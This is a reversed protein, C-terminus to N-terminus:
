ADSDRAEEAHEHSHESDSHEVDTINAKDLIFDITKEELLRNKLEELMNNKMYRGRLAAVNTGVKEAEKALHKDVDEDTVEIGQQQAISELLLVGKLRFRAEKELAEREKDTLDIEGRPVKQGAQRRQERALAQVQQEVLGKPLEIPNRELVTELAKRRLEMMAMNEHHAKIEERVHARVQEMDDKGLDAAFEDDLEPLELRSIQKVTVDCELTKGALTPQRFDDPVTLEFTRREGQKMGVLREAFGPLFSGEELKLDISRPEDGGVKRDGISILYEISAYDGMELSKEEDEVPVLEAHERRMQEIKADVEDDEIRYPARVEEGDVVRTYVTRTLEIGEYDKAEVEPKIEVTASYEFNSGPRLRSPDIQPETVVFLDHEEITSELTDSILKTRVEGEIQEGFRAELMMRPVKGPRFGPMRVTKALNRYAKNLEKAVRERPINVTIRRTVPNVREINVKM